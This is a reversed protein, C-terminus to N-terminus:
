ERSGLHSCQAAVYSTCGHALAVTARKCYDILATHSLKQVLTSTNRQAAGAHGQRRVRLSIHLAPIVEMKLTLPASHKKQNTGGLHGRFSLLAEHSIFSCFTIFPQISYAGFAQKYYRVLQLITYKRVGSLLYGTPSFFFKLGAYADM